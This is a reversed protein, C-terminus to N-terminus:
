NIILLINQFKMILKIIYISPIPLPGFYLKNFVSFSFKEKYEIFFAQSLHIYNIYTIYTNIIDFLTLVKKFIVM